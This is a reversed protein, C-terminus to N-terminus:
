SERNERNYSEQEAFCYCHCIQATTPRNSSESLSFFLLLPKTSHGDKRCVALVIGHRLKQPLLGTSQETLLTFERRNQLHREEVHHTVLRVAAAVAFHQNAVRCDVSDAEASGAEVQHHRDEEDVHLGALVEPRQYM